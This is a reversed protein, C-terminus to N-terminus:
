GNSVYDFIKRGAFASKFRFFGHTAHPYLNEDWPRRVLHVPLGSATLERVADDWLGVAPEPMLVLDLKERKLWDAVSAVPTRGHLIEAGADKLGARRFNVVRDDVALHEYAREPLMGALSAVGYEGALWSGASVDEDTLLVGTRGSREPWICEKLAQPRPIEEDEDLPEAKENLKMPGRFRGATFREINDARAVYHKGKTQLGAVWRWSLTNSAPDGDLLYRFFFDAGLQWPLKLTFIWISAFWMRAHNHLYGTDILERAFADFCAIGSEGAMARRCGQHDRYDNRLTQVDALYRRWVQPRMALWGKWYTRWCVEQIFKEAAGPSHRALVARIVEEETVVRARIWPSLRSVNHRNDPGRDENRDRAYDHGAREVFDELAALAAAREPRWYLEADLTM